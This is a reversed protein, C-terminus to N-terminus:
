FSRADRIALEGQPTGIVGGNDTNRYSMVAVEGTARNRVEWEYVNPDVAWPGGIAQEITPPPIPQM